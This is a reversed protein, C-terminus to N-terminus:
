IREVEGVTIAVSKCTATPKTMSSDLRVLARSGVFTPVSLASERVLDGPSASFSIRYIGRPGTRAKAVVTDGKKLTIVAGSVPEDGVFVAGTMECRQSDVMYANPNDALRWARDAAFAPWLTSIALMLAFLLASRKRFPYAHNKITM